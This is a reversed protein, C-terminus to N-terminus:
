QFHTQNFFSRNILSNHFIKQRLKTRKTVKVPLYLGKDFANFACVEIFGRRSM